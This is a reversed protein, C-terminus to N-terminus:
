TSFNAALCTEEAIDALLPPCRACNLDQKGLQITISYECMAGSDRAAYYIFLYVHAEVKHGSFKPQFTLKRAFFAASLTLNEASSSLFSFGGAEAPPFTLVLLLSERVTFCFLQHCHAISNNTAHM